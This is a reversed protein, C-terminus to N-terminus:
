ALRDIAHMVEDVRDAEDETEDMRESPEADAPTTSSHGQRVQGTVQRSVSTRNGSFGELSETQILHHRISSHVLLQYSQRLELEKALFPDSQQLQAVTYHYLEAEQHIWNHIRAIETNLRKIEEEARRYRFYQDTLFRNKPKAWPENRIDRRVDRLLDFEAVFTQQVIEAFQLKVHDKYLAKAAANFENLAARIAHSRSVIHKSIQTRLKYGTSELHGKQLEFLRQVVLRQLNDVAHRYRQKERAESMKIYEPHAPHWREHINLQAELDEVVESAHDVKSNAAKYTLQVPRKKLEETTGNAASRNLVQRQKAMENEASALKELASVYAIGLTEEEPEKKLSGLYTAEDELWREFDLSKIHQLVWVQSFIDGYEAIIDLAQKYNNFTFSGLALLKDADWQQFHRHITQKRHFATAYRTTCALDNSSSFARECTEFDELGSGQVYKPHHFLQCHRNHAYGHMAPIVFRGNFKSGFRSRSVTKKLSCGIDYGVLLKHGPFQDILHSIIALPYKALEGSAVMDTLALLFGHRCFAAFIGSEEFCGFMGKKSDDANAKWREVCVSIVDELDKEVNDMAPTNWEDNSQQTEVNRMEVDVDAEDEENGLDDVQDKRGRKGKQLPKKVGENTFSDVDERSLYYDSKFDRRDANGANGFRKLSNNGDISLLLDYELRNENPLRNQCSPCSHLLRWNPSNRGLVHNLRAEVRRLIQLYVDFADSMHECLKRDYLRGQSDCLAKVFPQFGLRPFRSSLLRYQELTHVSFAIKPTVPASSLLGRRMLSVNATVSNSHPIRYFAHYRRWSVAHVEWYSDGTHPDPDVFPQDNLGVGFKWQLYEATLTDYQSEWAAAERERRMAYDRHYNNFKPRQTIYYAGRTADVIVSYAASADELTYEQVVDADEDDELTEGYPVEMWDSAAQDGCADHALSEIAKRDRVSLQKLIQTRRQQGAEREEAQQRM